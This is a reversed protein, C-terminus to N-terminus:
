FNEDFFHKNEKCILNRSTEKCNSRLNVMITLLLKRGGLHKLENSM